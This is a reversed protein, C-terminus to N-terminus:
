FTIDSKAGFKKYNRFEITNLSCESSGRSCTLVDSKVPLLFLAGGINVFDYDTASEVTDIPFQAPLQLAQMEIRLPRAVDKDIWVSGKYAPFYRQGPTVIHWSSREQTVKFDYLRAPRRQMSSTGRYRFEAVGPTFLNKMLTIFEGSSWAGNEMKKKDLNLYREQGNEVLLDAEVHDLARWDTKATTSTYRTTMQKVIYNPLTSMYKDLEERVKDLFPDFENKTNLVVPPAAPKPPASPAAIPAVPEEPPAAPTRRGRALKPRDPDEEARVAQITAPPEPASQAEEKEKDKSKDKTKGKSPDQNSGPVNQARHFMTEEMPQRAAAREAETGRREFVISLAVFKRVEDQTADIVLQDGPEFDISKVKKHDKWHETTKTIKIILVRKDEPEVFIESGDRARFVGRIATVVRLADKVSGKTNQESPGKPFPDGGIPGGLQAALRTALLLPFLVPVRMAAVM